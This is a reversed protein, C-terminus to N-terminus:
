VEVAIFIVRLRNNVSSDVGFVQVFGGETKEYNITVTTSGTIEFQFKTIGLYVFGEGELYTTYASAALDRATNDTFTYVRFRFAGGTSTSGTFSTTVNQKSGTVTTLSSYSLGKAGFNGDKLGTDKGGFCGTLVLIGIMMVCISALSLIKRKM